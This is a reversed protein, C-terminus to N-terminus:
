RYMQVYEIEGNEVLRRGYGFCACHVFFMVSTSLAMGFSSLHM